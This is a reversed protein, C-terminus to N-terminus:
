EMAADPSLRKCRCWTCDCGRLPNELNEFTRNPLVRSAALKWRSPAYIRQLLHRPDHHAVVRHLLANRGRDGLATYIRRNVLSAHNLRLLRDRCADGYRGSDGRAAGAFCGSMLAYRMGFGFLADQFGVSEGVICRGGSEMRHVRQVNGTGGFRRSKVPHIGVNKEFFALTAELYQRESHFDRYMCTALTGKGSHVLLYSYGAPAFDDGLAVYFGDAADTEFVYGAAIVDARHPGEAIIAPAQLYRAREGFRIVAGADLAQQKLAQDLTGRDCGRRVLYFIPKGAALRHDAGHRDFCVIEYVPVYDFTPRIGYRDLDGLVDSDSSWNELGQFDGHFRGGVDARKEFVEVELGKSRATM